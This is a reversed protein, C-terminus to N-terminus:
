LCEESRNRLGAPVSFSWRFQPFLYSFRLHNSALLYYSGSQTVSPLVTSPFERRKAWHVAEGGGVQPLLKAFHAFTSCV